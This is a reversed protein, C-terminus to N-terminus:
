CGHAIEIFIDLDFGLAINKKERIKKKICPKTTRGNTLIDLKVVHLWGKHV